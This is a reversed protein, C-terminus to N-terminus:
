NNCSVKKRGSGSSKMVTKGEVRSTAKIINTQNGGKWTVTNFQANNKLRLPFLEGQDTKSGYMLVDGNRGIVVRVTPKAVTGKIEWIAKVRKNAAINTNGITQYQSGDEFEINQTTSTANNQFQIEGATVSNGVLPTGNVELNFANDLEMIDYVFGYDAGTENFQFSIMEGNKKFDTSTFYIGTETVQNKGKGTTRTAQPFEWNFGDLGNVAQTCTKLTLILNYRYGPKINLGTVTINSKTEGDVSLSGFKLSASNTLNHILTTPNATITRQGNTGLSPFTVAKGATNVAGYTLNGTKLNLSVNQVVPNFVTNSIGTIAGTMTQDMRLTITVESFKPKLIAALFNQGETLKKPTSKWYLLDANVNNISATTLDNINDITPLTSTSRASVVIFTYTDYTNLIISSELTEEGYVYDKSVALTNNEKYVLLKYKIKEGLEKPIGSSKQKFGKALNQTNNEKVPILQSEIQFDKDVYQIHTPIEMKEATSTSAYLEEEDEYELGNLKVSLTAQGQDVIENRSKECSTLIFFLGILYFIIKSYM